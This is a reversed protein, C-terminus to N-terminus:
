MKVLLIFYEELIKGDLVNSTGDIKISETISIGGLNFGENFSYSKDLVLRGGPTPM